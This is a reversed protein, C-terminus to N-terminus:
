DVLSVVVVESETLVLLTDEKGIGVRRPECWYRQELATSTVQALGIAEANSSAHRM